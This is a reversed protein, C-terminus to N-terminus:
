WSSKGNENIWPVGSQPINTSIIPKGFSMAEIQVVGFAESKECSPLCFLDAAQYLVPMYTQNKFNLFHIKNDMKSKAATVKLAQEKIGNGVLLLHVNPNTLNQM